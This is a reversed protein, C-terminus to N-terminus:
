PCIVFYHMQLLTSVPVTTLGFTGVQDSNAQFYRAVISSKDSLHLQLNTVFQDEDFTCPSSFASRGQATLPLGPDVSQPTPILYDGNALQLNLVALAIPHINSGDPEIAVGGFLGTMGAFLAGLTAQSRDDTLPPGTYVTSCEAPVGTSQRTGQYSVFFLLKDKVVPGGLAFGFQNQRLVPRPQGLQNRFFDNANM